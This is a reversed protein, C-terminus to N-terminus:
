PARQHLIKKGQSHQVEAISNTAYKLVARILTTFREKFYEKRSSAMIAARLCRTGIGGTMVTKEAISHFLEILEADIALELVNECTFKQPDTGMEKNDKVFVDAGGDLLAICLNTATERSMKKEIREHIVHSLPTRQSVPMYGSPSEGAALLEKVKAIDLKSLPEQMVSSGAYPEKPLPVEPPAPAQPAAAPVELAQAVVPVAPTAHAIMPQAEAVAYRQDGIQVAALPPHIEV